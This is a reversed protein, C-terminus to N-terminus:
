EWLMVVCARRLSPIPLPVPLPHRSCWLDVGETYIATCGGCVSVSMEKYIMRGLGFMCAALTQCGQFEIVKASSSNSWSPLRIFPSLLQRRSAPVQKKCQAAHLFSKVVTAIVFLFVHFLGFDLISHFLHRKQYFFDEIKQNKYLTTENRIKQTCKQILLPKDNQLGPFFCSEHFVQSRSSVRGSRHVRDPKQEIVFDKWLFDFDIKSGENKKPWGISYSSVGTAFSNLDCNENIRRVNKPPMQNFILKSNSHFCPRPHGVFEWIVSCNPM